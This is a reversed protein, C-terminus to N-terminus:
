KIVYFFMILFLLYGVLGTEGLNQIHQGDAGIFYNSFGGVGIGFLPHTLFGNWVLSWKEARLRMSQDTQLFETIGEYNLVRLNEVRELFNIAVVKYIPSFICFLLIFILFLKFTQKKFGFFIRKTFVALIIGFVVVTPTRAGSLLVLITSSLFGLLIIKKNPYRYNLLLLLLFPVILILYGGFDYNGDFTSSVLNSSPGWFRENAPQLHLYPIFKQIIELLNFVKFYQLFGIVVVIGFSVFVLNYFESINKKNIIIYAFFFLSIYEIKRLFFLPTTVDGRFSGLITSILGWLLYLGIWVFIINKFIKIKKNLIYIGLLAWLYVIIFDELRISVPFGTSILPIKPFVIIFFLLFFYIKKM